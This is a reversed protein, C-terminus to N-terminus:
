SSQPLPKRGLGSKLLCFAALALPPLTILCVTNWGFSTLVGGSLFSGVTMLGFVIFDNLSQVRTKEEPRHCELVMASAGTFGFNWGVGLLILTVWFHAIDVGTLGVAVSCATLALGTLIISPAGFRTILKGTVFGPGYMAIVHWQIGLNAANQSIGCIRMALPASTMLLNMLMYSVVGCIVATVFRPQRVIEALPRGADKSPQPKPLRVGWLVCASLAAVFAQALFTAVFAHPPTLDMTASVLQPGIVGSFVGGAMVASVARARRDAPVGDAAAFRFSLVVAGYMGGFFTGACYLWFSGLYMALASILGVLVGCTTGVLFSARRGHRRAIAGAPLTGAAMGVVFTSVPMTALASSPALMAGAVAGTAFVVTSNAGALAQAIALRVVNGRVRNHLDVQLPQELLTLPTM